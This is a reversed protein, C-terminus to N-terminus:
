DAVGGPGLQAIDRLWPAAWLGQITMGTGMTLTGIPALRWFYRDRFIVKMERLQAGLKEGRAENPKEPVVIHTIAALM